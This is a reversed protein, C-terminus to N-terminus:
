LKIVYIKGMEGKKGDIYILYKYNGVFILRSNIDEPLWNKVKHSILETKIGNKYQIIRIKGTFANLKGSRITNPFPNWGESFSYIKYSDTVGEFEVNIKLKIMEQNVRSLEIAYQYQENFNKMKDVTYPGYTADTLNIFLGTRPYDNGLILFHNFEEVPVNIIPAGQIFNYPIILICNLIVPVSSSVPKPSTQCSIFLVITLISLIINYTKVLINTKM